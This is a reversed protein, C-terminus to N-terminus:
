LTHGSVVATSGDAVLSHVRKQIPASTISTLNSTQSNQCDVHNKDPFYFLRVEPIDLSCNGCCTFNHDECLEQSVGPPIPSPSDFGGLLDVQIVTTNSGCDSITYQGKKMAQAYSRCEQSEGFKKQWSILPDGDDGAYSQRFCGIRGLDTVYSSQASLYSACPLVTSTIATTLNVDITISGTQCIPGYINCDQPKDYPIIYSFETYSFDSDGTSSSNLSSQSANAILATIPPQNVTEYLLNSLM